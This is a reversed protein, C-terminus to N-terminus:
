AVERALKALLEDITDAQARVRARLREVEADDVAEASAHRLLEALAAAELGAYREEPPRPTLDVITRALGDALKHLAALARVARPDSGAFELWTRIARHVHAQTARLRAVDDGGELAAIAEDDLDAPDPPPAPRAPEPPTFGEYRPEARQRKRWRGLTARSVAHGEAELRRRLGDLTLQSSPDVRLIAGALKADIKPAPGRRPM